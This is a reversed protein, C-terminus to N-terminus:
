KPPQFTTPPIQSTGSRPAAPIPPMAREAAVIILTTHLGYPMGQAPFGKDHDDDLLGVFYGHEYARFEYQTKDPLETEHKLAIHVPQPLLKGDVSTIHIFNPGGYAKRFGVDTVGVVNVVKGLPVGIRGIISGRLNDVSIPRAAPQQVPVTTQAHAMSCLSIFALGAFVARATM